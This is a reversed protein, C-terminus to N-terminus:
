RNLEKAFIPQLKKAKFKRAFHECKCLFMYYINLGCGFLSEANGQGKSIIMDSNQIIKLCQPSIRDLFTGMHNSGNDIVNCSEYLNVQKADVISCDNGLEKGRVVSTIEINLNFMKIKNILLKDLVIEGCNDHLYVLNKCKVIESKFKEYVNLDFDINESDDLLEFLKNEDVNSLAEFDIYNGVFAYKIAALLPDFSNNIKNLINDSMNLLINNYYKKVDTYDKKGFVDYYHEKLAMSLDTSTIDSDLSDIVNFQYRKYEEYEKGKLNVNFVQKNLRCEFCEDPVKYFRNEVFYNYVLFGM